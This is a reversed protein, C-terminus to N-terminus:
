VLGQVALKLHHLADSALQSMVSAHARYYQNEIYERTSPEGAENPITLAIAAFTWPEGVEGEPTIGHRKTWIAAQRKQGNEVMRHLALEISAAILEALEDAQYGAIQQAIEETVSPAVFEFPAVYQRPKAPILRLVGARTIEDGRIYADELYQEFADQDISAIKRLRRGQEPQLGLTEFTPTDEDRRGPTDPVVEDILQGAKREARLKLAAAENQIRQSHGAKKLAVQLVHLKSAAGVADGINELKEIEVRFRNLAVLETSTM